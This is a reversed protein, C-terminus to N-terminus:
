PQVRGLEKRWMQASIALLIWSFWFYKVWIVDLFFAAVLIAWAAAETGVLLPDFEDRAHRVARFESGIALLLLIVGVTGLEVSTSLYINHAARGFGEFRPAAGAYLTYASPFCNIGAGLLWNHKFAELGATWIPVRGAGGSDAATGFRQFFPGPVFLLLLLLLSMPALARWKKLRRLYIVAIVVLALSAGRSMTLFICFGMPLVALMALTKGIWKQSLFFLAIALSMPLLLSAAMGNPDTEQDGIVLSARGSSVFSVGEYFAKTTYAAALCGGLVTLVVIRLREKPTIRLSVSLLYLVLLSVATPMRRVVSDPDIAWLSTVGCWFVFLSWWLASRPPTHFRRQALGVICLISTAAAGVFFTLSTGGGGGGGVIAIEDFPIAVAFLGLAMEVPWQAVLPLVALPILYLWKGEGVFTGVVLACGIAVVAWAASRILQSDGFRNAGLVSEKWSLRHSLSNPM